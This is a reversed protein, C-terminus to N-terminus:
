QAPLRGEGVQVRVPRKAKADWECAYTVPTFAGFGNQFEVKDGVFIVNGGPGESGWKYRSMIPEFSGATWKVSNKAQHEIADKCYVSADILSREGACALDKDCNAEKDAKAKADAANKAAEAATAKPDPAPHPLGDSYSHAIALVIFALVVLVIATGCGSNKKVPKAPAPAQKGPQAAAIPRGCNPCTPAQDSVDRGCDPCKMLAM